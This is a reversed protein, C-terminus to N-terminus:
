SVWVSYKKKIIDLPKVKNISCCFEPNKKYTEDKVTFEHEEKIASISEVNLGYLETLKKKYDLTQPFHFGTDIFYVKQNKNVSSFLHLLFASTAAFSSTLMIEDTSFDEYLMEIRQEISLPQYKLNLAQLEKGTYTRKAVIEKELM